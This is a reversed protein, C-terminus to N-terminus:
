ISKAKKLIAKVTEDSPNLDLEDMTKMTELLENYEAAILPDGDIANRTEVTETLRTDNYAYKILNKTSTKNM